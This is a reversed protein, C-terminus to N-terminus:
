LWARSLLERSRVTDGPLQSSTIAIYVVERCQTVVSVVVAHVTASVFSWACDLVLAAALSPARGGNGSVSSLEREEGSTQVLQFALLRAKAQRDCWGFRIRGRSCLYCYSRGGLSSRWFCCHHRVSPGVLQPNLM